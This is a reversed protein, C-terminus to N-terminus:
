CIWSRARIPPGTPCTAWRCWIPRAGSWNDRADILGAEALMDHFKPYDGHLDGFVVVRAVHDWATQAQAPAAASLALVALFVALLRFGFGRLSFDGPDRLGRGGSRPYKGWHPFIFLAPRGRKIQGGQPFHSPARGRRSSPPKAAQESVARVMSVLM